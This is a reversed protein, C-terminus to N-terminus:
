EKEYYGWGGFYGNEETYETEAEVQTLMGNNNTGLYKYASSESINKIGDYDKWRIVYYCDSTKGWTGSDTIKITIFGSSAMLDSNNVITGAYSIDTKDASNFQYFNTGSIEFGDGYLLSHWYGSLAPKQEDQVDTLPCGFFLFLFVLLVSLFFIKKTFM